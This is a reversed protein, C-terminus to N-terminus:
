PKGEPVYISGCTGCQQRRSAQIKAIEADLEIKRAANRAQLKAPKQQHAKYRVVTVGAILALAILVSAFIESGAFTPPPGPLAAPCGETAITITDHEDGNGSTKDNTGLEACDPFNVIISSM